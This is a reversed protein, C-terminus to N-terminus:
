VGEKLRKLRQKILEIPVSKETYLDINRCKLEWEILEELEEVAGQKKIEKELDKFDDENASETRCWLKLRELGSM